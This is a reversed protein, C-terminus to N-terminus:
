AALICYTKPLRKLNNIIFASLHGLPQLRRNALGNYPGFGTDPTRIGGEGGSQNNRRRRVPAQQRFGLRLSTSANLRCRLRRGFDRAYRPLERRSTPPAPRFRVQPTSCAHALRGQRRAPAQQRFGSRLSPGGTGEVVWAFAPPAPRFRVATYLNQLAKERPTTPYQRTHSLLLILWNVQRCEL